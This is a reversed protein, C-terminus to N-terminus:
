ARNADLTTRPSRLAAPHRGGRRTANVVEVVRLREGESNSEGTDWLTGFDDQAVREVSASSGRGASAISCPRRVEQNGIRRDAGAHPLGLREAIRNPIEVGEWYWIRTGTPGNSPPGNECHLGWAVVTWAGAARGAAVAAADGAETRARHDRPGARTARRRLRRLARGGGRARRVRGRDLQLRRRARELAPPWAQWCRRTWGEVIDRVAELAPVPEAVWWLPVDLRRAPTVNSSRNAYRGQELVVREVSSLAESRRNRRRDGGDARTACRRRAAVTRRRAIIELMRRTAAQMSGEWVIEYRGHGAAARVHHEVRDRDTDFAKGSAAARLLGAALDLTADM